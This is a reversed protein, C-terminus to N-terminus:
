SEIEEFRKKLKYIDIMRNEKETLPISKKILEDSLFHGTINCRNRM